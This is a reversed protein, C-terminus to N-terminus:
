DSLENRLFKKIKKREFEKGIIPKGIDKILVLNIKSSNNKKDKEMFNLIKNLHKLKFYSKISQPLKPNHIQKM